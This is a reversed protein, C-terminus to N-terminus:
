PASRHVAHTRHAARLLDVAGIEGVLQQGDVVPLYLAGKSAMTRLVELCPTDPSVAHLIRGEHLCCICDASGHALSQFRATSFSSYSRQTPELARLLDKRLVISEIRRGSDPARRVWAHDTGLFPKLLDEVPMHPPLFLMQEVDHNMVDRAPLRYFAEYLRKRTDPHMAQPTHDM